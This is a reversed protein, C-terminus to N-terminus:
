FRSTTWLARRFVFLVHTRSCFLVYFLKVDTQCGPPVENFGRSACFRHKEALIGSRRRVAAFNEGRRWLRYLTYAIRHSIMACVKMTSNWDIPEATELYVSTVKPLESGHSMWEAKWFLTM